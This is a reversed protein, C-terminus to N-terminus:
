SALYFTPSYSLVYFFIVAVICSPSSSLLVLPFLQPLSSDEGEDRKIRARAGEAGYFM